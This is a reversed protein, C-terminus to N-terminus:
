AARATTLLVGVERLPVDVAAFDLELGQEGRSPDPVHDLGEDVVGFLSPPQGFPGDDAPVLHLHVAVRRVGDDGVGIGHAHAVEVDRRREAEHHLARGLVLGTVAELDLPLIEALVEGLVVDVRRRQVEGGDVVGDTSGGRELVGDVVEGDGPHGLGLVVSAQGRGHHPARGVPLVLEIGPGPGDLGPPGVPAERGAGRELRGLELGAALGPELLAVRRLVGPRHRLVEAGQGREHATVGGGRALERIEECREVCAAICRVVPGAVFRAFPCRPLEVPEACGLVRLPDHAGDDFSSYASAGASSGPFSSRPAM